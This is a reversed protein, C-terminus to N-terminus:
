ATIPQTLGQVGTCARPHHPGGATYTLLVWMQMGSVSCTPYGTCVHYNESDTWIDKMGILVPVYRHVLLHSDAVSRIQMRAILWDIMARDLYLLQGPVVQVAACCCM